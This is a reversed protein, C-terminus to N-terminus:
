RKYLVLKKHDQQTKKYTTKGFMNLLDEIDQYAILMAMSYTRRCLQFCFENLTNINDPNGSKLKERRIFALLDGIVQEVDVTNHVTNGGEGRKMNNVFNKRAPSHGGNFFQEQYAVESLDIPHNLVITKLSFLNRVWNFFRRSYNANRTYVHLGANNKKLKNWQEQLTGGTIFILTVKEHRGIKENFKNIFARTERSQTELIMFHRFFKICHYWVIYNEKEKYFMDTLRIIDENYTQAPTVLFAGNDSNHIAAHIHDNLGVGQNQGGYINITNNTKDM